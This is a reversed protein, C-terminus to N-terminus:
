KKDSDKPKPTDQQGAGGGSQGNGTLGHRLNNTGFSREEDLNGLRGILTERLNSTGFGALPDSVGRLPLRGKIPLRVM